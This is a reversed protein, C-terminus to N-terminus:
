RPWVMLRQDNSSTSVDWELMSRRQAPTHVACLLMCGDFCRWPYNFKEMLFSDSWFPFGVYDDVTRNTRELWSFFFATVPETKSCSVRFYIPFSFSAVVIEHIIVDNTVIMTQLKSAGGFAIGSFYRGNECKLNFSCFCHPNKQWEKGENKKEM